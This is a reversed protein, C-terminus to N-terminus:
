QNLDLFFQNITKLKVDFMEPTLLFYKIFLDSYLLLTKETRKLLKVTNSLSGPVINEKENIYCFILFMDYDMRKKRLSLKKM